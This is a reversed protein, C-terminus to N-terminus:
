VICEIHVPLPLQQPCLSQLAFQALVVEILTLAVDFWRTYM